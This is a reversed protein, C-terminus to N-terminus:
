QYIEKVRAYYIRLFKNLGAISAVRSPKGEREKKLIFEYVADGDPKSCKICKMVEYGTKRLVSSGRKSISRKTGVFKGSQYPPSDIGAFAILSKSTKFRRIDGIEAILRPALKNGVGSMARVIPYEALTKSIEQMQTLICYLTNDIEKLVRVAERVLLETTPLCSSLTPIGEKALAYIRIAKGSNQHYGMNKAWENYSDIFNDENLKTINDYHWYKEAFDSLKDKKLNEGSGELLGKIGPMTADLLTGLALRSDIHLKIYHGYQRGLLRLQVYVEATEEYEKLNFWNDIGYNSIKVADLKDTKAKRISMTAYKKMVLPNIVSVFIDKDKLYQVVPFHYHSTAEMVVKVEDDFRSIMSALESLDKETHCIEFSSAVIEGYPKLICVMSKEKSVDIGVSIM